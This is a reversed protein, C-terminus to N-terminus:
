PVAADAASSRRWAIPRWLGATSFCRWGWRLWRLLAAALWLAWALMLLRYVSLPVSLVSVRPLEGVVRDRYWQLDLAGSGNGLIQMQPSGLLGQAIARYLIVLAAVTLVALGVQVLNFVSTRAAPDMRARWGLALLWGVVILGSWVDVQSLGVGLLCWATASLPALPVRALALAALGIAIMVGWFLVAPGFPPGHLALIWRDPGVGAVVKANVSPLGPDVASSSFLTSIGRPERWFMQVEQTGPRIPLTVTRGEQRIPQETGDIRVWQLAANPPLALAHQGGQSSRLGLTLEVDTARLGPRVTQLSADITLTAGGVGAPRVIELVVREGPWPRWQPLWRGEEGQHHVVALGSATVHWIPSADLVWSEVWTPSPPAVLEIRKAHELTSQWQFGAEPPAMSVQVRGAVVHAHASIVAEGPLLPVEVIVPEGPASVRVVRTEVHWDLGLRLVREVRVFPPLRVPEGAAAAPGGAAARTFRLQDGPRADEHVGDVVWGPADIEVRQPRSPLPLDISTRAPVAGLMLVQHSGPPLAIWLTRGERRLRDGSPDGDISVDEPMWQGPDAPLPVAVEAGANVELRVAMEGERLEFRARAIRACDPVCAPPETLRTRLDSLLGPAPFEAQAPPSWGAAAIALMAGLALGGPIAPAGPARAGRLLALAFAAVLAIRVLDLLLNVRPSLLWLRMAQDRAVPGNWQLSVEKWQWRPVGPGTQVSANPDVADFASSAGADQGYAARDKVSQMARRATVVLEKGAAPAVAIKDLGASEPAAPAETGQQVPADAPEFADISQWPRELQPWLGSRLTDVAYTLGLGALLLWAANRYWRVLTAPRGPPLVALLAIAALLHLWVQRPAGPEHWTLVLAALAIAGARRGRLRATAMAMMLVLFLGLLSWRKIWTDSVADVGSTAFLMWGPPLQVTASLKQVDIDWGVAPLQTLTGDLRSDAQLEVTGRRVEVGRQAGGARLTIPQPEGNLVARGLTMGPGTELRWGRTMAGSLHDSVTYGGADFDLWLERELQLRDPAPQPDGRRVVDIKMKVGPVMRYAPLAQWDVPMATQRPDMAPVGGVEALRLDSRAQFSWIEEAPWPAAVKPLALSTRDAPARATVRLEWHGPRIQIRMRGDPEIQAPLRSDLAMPVFGELLVPGVVVERSRGAVQMEIATEVQMPLDDVIRRFVAIRLADAEGAPAAAPHSRKLWIEGADNIDPWPVDNGDLALRVIGTGPAIALSEPVRDWAFRGEIRHSGPALEIGPRGNRLLVRAPAGDVVVDQPWHRESGPVALWGQAFVQARLAFTGGNEALKLALAGPWVCTRTRGDRGLPCDRDGADRLVWQVWPRLPEPVEAPLMPGALAGAAFAFLVFIAPLRTLKM